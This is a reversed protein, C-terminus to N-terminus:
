RTVSRAAFAKDSVTVGTPNTATHSGAGTVIVSTTAWRGPSTTTATPMESGPFAPV